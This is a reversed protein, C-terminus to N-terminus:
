TNHKDQLRTIPANPMEGTSLTYILRDMISFFVEVSYGVLFALALPSLSLASINVTSGPDTFWGIALGSLAGLQIRLRYRINSEINYTLHRIELTLTRLVYAFAGLLGYLLPLIYLQLAQLGFQAEQLHIIQYQLNRELAPLYDASKLHKGLSSIGLYRWMFNWQKLLAHNAELRTHFEDLKRDLTILEANEMLNEPLIDAQLRSRELELQEIKTPYVNIIGNIIHSGILSYFQVVVLIALVLLTFRQYSSVTRQAISNVSPPFFRKRLFGLFGTYFNNPYQEPLPHTAKLSSVSAPAVARAIANFALWFRTEVDSNWHQSQQAHKAEVITHVIDEPLELGKQAAYSLLLQAEQIHQIPCMVESAPHKLAIDTANM